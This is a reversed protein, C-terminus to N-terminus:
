VEDPLDPLAPKPSNIRIQGVSMRRAAPVTGIPMGVRKASQLAAPRAASLASGRPSPMLLTPAGKVFPLSSVGPIPLKPRARDTRGFSFFTCDPRALRTIPPFTKPLLEKRDSVLLVGSDNAEHPNYNSASFVTYVPMGRTPVVGNVCQHARIIASLGNAQLFAKVAIPGYALVGGRQSEAFRVSQTDTPDAWLMMRVAMVETDAVIPRQISEIQSVTEITPALGGHVCFFSNQVVAAIPMWSFAECFADFVTEPYGSALLETRFGYESSVKKTEHNGRILSFREPYKLTLTFLLLITELSFAGRDVYDGLFLYNENLGQERFIRLLDHFSGHLDGVICVDTEIQLLMPLSKFHETATECLSIIDGSPFQPFPISIGIALINKETSSVVADFGSWFLDVLDTM